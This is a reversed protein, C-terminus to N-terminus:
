ILRKRSWPQFRRPEIETSYLSKSRTPRKTTGHLQVHDVMWEDDSLHPCAKHLCSTPVEPDFITANCGHPISVSFALETFLFPIWYTHTLHLWSTRHPTPRAVRWSVLYTDTTNDLDFSLSKATFNDRQGLERSFGCTLSDPNM